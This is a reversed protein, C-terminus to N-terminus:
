REREVIVQADPCAWLDGRYLDAARRYAEAAGALDNARHCRDGERVLAEFCALDIQVGAEANLRYCGDAHLVPPAGGTADGLLKNLSYILSNLSQGALVPDGAPWLASLIADRPVREQYRLGLYCLLAEAKGGGRLAVPQDCKLLRFSGLLCILIPWAGDSEHFCPAIRQDLQM